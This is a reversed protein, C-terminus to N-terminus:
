YHHRTGISYDDSATSSPEESLQQEADAPVILQYDEPSFTNRV